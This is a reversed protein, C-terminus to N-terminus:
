ERGQRGTRPRVADDSAEATTPEYTYQVGSLEESLAWLRAQAGKSRSARSSSAPGPKGRNGFLGSPGLYAGGPVDADMAARLSPLAAQEAPQALRQLGAAVAPRLLAPPDGNWLQTPSLGPHVALSTTPAGVTTLQQQLERAFLLNALKSRGYATVSRRGDDARARAADSGGIGASAGTVLATRGKQGPAHALSWAM